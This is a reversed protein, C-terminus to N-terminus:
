FSDALLRWDDETLQSDEDNEVNSLCDKSYCYYDDSSAVSLETSSSCGVSSDATTINYHSAQVSDTSYSSFYLSHCDSIMHYDATAMAGPYSSTPYDYRRRKATSSEMSIPCFDDGFKERMCNMIMTKLEVFSFPEFLVKSSIDKWHMKHVKKLFAQKQKRPVLRVLPIDMHSNRLLRQFEEVTFYQLKEKSIIMDYSSVEIRELATFINSVVTFICAPNLTSVGSELIAESRREEVQDDIYLIRWFRQM